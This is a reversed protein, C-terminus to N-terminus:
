NNTYPELDNGSKIKKMLGLSIIFCIMLVIPVSSIGLIFNDETYARLGDKTYQGDWMIDILIGVAYQFIANFIISFSNIVGVTLASANRPVIYWAANFCIMEAGCFFGIGCVLYYLQEITLKDVFLMVCFLSANCLLAIIIVLNLKKIKESFYPLILSGVALGIYLSLSISISDSESTGFKTTLFRGGWLDGFVCAPAYIGGAIISYLLIPMSFVYKFQGITEKFGDAAKYKTKKIFFITALFLLFGSIGIMIVVIRWDHILMIHKIIQGGIIPGFVGITLTLGSLVSRTTGIFNESIVKLTIGLSAGSGLAIIFRAVQMLYFNKSIGFMLAGGICLLIAALTINKINTRDLLFGVPIQVIGYTLSYISGLTGFEEATIKFTEFIEKSLINPFVRLMYQYFFFASCIFWTLYIQSSKLDSNASSM